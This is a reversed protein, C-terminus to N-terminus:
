VGQPVFRAALAADPMMCTDYRGFIRYRNRAILRYIPQSIARPLLHLVGLARWPWGLRGMAAAFAELHGYIRGEVIVLNTEFDQTPLDLAGYLVQGVPAQATAFSFVQARDAWIMFRLFGSCLVCEADFVILDRGGLLHQVDGSLDSVQGIM